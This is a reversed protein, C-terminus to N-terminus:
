IDMYLMHLSIFGDDSSDSECTNNCPSNLSQVELGEVENNINTGDKLVHAFVKTALMGGLEQLIKKRESRRLM